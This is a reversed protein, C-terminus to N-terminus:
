SRLGSRSGPPNQRRRSPIPCLASNCVRCYAQRNHRRRGQPHLRNAAKLLRRAKRQRSAEIRAAMEMRKEDMLPILQEAIFLLDRKMLRVPVAAVISQLVRIGTANALAEERRRKEQEAKFSADAKPMQKKPHHVPCTLETCVKRLEGKEIGDSVIAETTYKCTKLEPWKAKEPTDPKEERIEVYKNRPITKAGEPQQKYATSIQVLEPKAAVKANM